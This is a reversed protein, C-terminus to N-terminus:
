KSAGNFSFFVFDFPSPNKDPLPYVWSVLFFVILVIAPLIFVCCGVPGHGVPTGVAKKARSSLMQVKDDTFYLFM